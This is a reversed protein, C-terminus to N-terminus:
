KWKPKFFVSAIAVVCSYVPYIFGTPLIYWAIARNKILGSALFLLLIDIALKFIVFILGFSGNEPVFFGYLLACLWGANVAFTLAALGMNLPNKNYRFKSAWRIKQKMLEPFSYAPRTQALAEASKLFGIRSGSIKKVDELFFIDDGSAIHRHSSFGNAKEFIEKTFALNAGSCLFAKKYFASGASLVTLVNNEIAQLAWLPGANDAIAVPAIILDNKSETQFDSIAKLWTWSQTFTDADRLVILPHAAFQMAYEISAKKGKHQKNSIIRYDMRSEKLAAQAQLVTSDSSNDNILIIQVKEPPYDQQLISKLCRVITREENRACIIITVFQAPLTELSEFRRTRIFGSALWLMVAAYLFLLAFLIYFLVTM